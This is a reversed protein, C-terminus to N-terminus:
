PSTERINSEDEIWDDDSVRRSGGKRGSLSGTIQPERGAYRGSRQARAAMEERTWPM